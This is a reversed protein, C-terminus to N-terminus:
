ERTLLNDAQAGLWDRLTRMGGSLTSSILGASVLVRHAIYSRVGSQCMVAVPRGAAAAKVDDLRGRLETHPINLAGPLHGTAFESASRVDLILAEHLAWDLDDPQWLKVVGSVLNDALYGVMSVPDKASGYPPSYCLDLEILDPAKLGARMATALVDIRKDVGAEGVAQAGLIAGTVPDIHVMLSITKAGPFYEAHNLPHLHMTTFPLGAAKLGARNAGTMAATLAGVRVIATGLPHPLARAPFHGAIADAVLRGARQAPGALPVPRRAGTVADQSVVADGIAWVDGLNTRGQADVIIAGREDCTVGGTAFPASAPVTGASLLVLDATFAQADGLSVVARGGDDAIGTITVAEHVDIGLRRLEKAVVFAMEQELPPLVHPAVELLTVDVGALRLGEAAELGIFGAGIVVARRPTDPAVAFQRLAVADAVTRLTHVSPHDLGSIPPRAAVTGPSLILQDYALTYQGEPGTVSVTHGSADLATVRSNLRVDINLAARLSEPTQVLLDSQAAIEGGVFYPLGCSAFSVAPGQELVVITAAEDLRRLRAAASMGGAVGGVIVYNHNPM